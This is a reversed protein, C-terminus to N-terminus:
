EKEKKDEEPKESTELSKIKEDLVKIDDDLQAMRGIAQQRAEGALEIKAKLEKEKFELNQLKKRLGEKLGELLVRVDPGEGM